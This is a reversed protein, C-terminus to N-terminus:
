SYSKLHIYRFLLLYCLLLKSLRLLISDYVQTSQVTHLKFIHMVSHINQLSKTLLPIIKNSTQKILTLDLICFM